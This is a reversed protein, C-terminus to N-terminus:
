SLHEPLIIHLIRSIALESRDEQEIPSKIAIKVINEDADCKENCGKRCCALKWHYEECDNL